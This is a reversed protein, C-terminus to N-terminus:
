FTINLTAMFSALQPTGDQELRTFLNSVFYAEPDLGTWGTWTHLNRAAVTLVADQGGLWRAYRRPFSYSASVERLKAFDAKNVVWSQAINNGQLEAIKLIDYNQPNFNEDCRLFVQCLARLNNDFHRNGLKFDLLGYIRLRSLLTLTTSFSGEWKPDWVGLFVGGAASSLCDVGTKGDPGGACLVNIARKTTPDYTASIVKKRFIADVPYGVKPGFAGLTDVGPGLDLVKNTNYSLNLDGRLSLSRRQIPIASIQGEFGVNRIAGINLFQTAPFGLSPALQKELIADRTKKYYVSIDAAIRDDLLGAEFGAELETAREPALDPNGISQPIVAPGGDGGTVAQYSRLAAFSQPQQGSQGYAARLKLANVTGALGEALVYSASVKPYAVLDFNAGFASNNDVRVAGTLYFKEQWSFQQQVFVGLTSNAVFDDFGFTQATAAITELGPAPFQNGTANVVDVRRRYYQAGLTSTSGIRPTLKLKVGANYDFTFYSVARRQDFKFGQAGVGPNFQVWEPKLFRNLQRSAEDTQDQGVTLRQTFWPRPRHNITVSATYRDVDQSAQRSGWQFEPPGFLFGRSSTFRGLSDRVIAPDGFITSFWIGGAGAEFAQNLKSKVIGLTAQIDYSEAPTVNVNLNATFRRQNNTPEVGEDKDFSAATFYRVVGTGGSVNLGYGMGYGNTFLPRDVEGAAALGAEQALPDWEVVPCTTPDAPRPFPCVRGVPKRIRGEPNMFWQTGQRINLSIKPKDGAQGRKTFIQIVGNSAETGYLTAASPGKIVEIRDILNPDIDNLRSVVGSGFAQVVIGTAVDNVVRVGDVYILPQDSLSISNRGRIRIRPGAGVQGTGPIVVVGPARGNILNAIDPAPALEQMDAARVTTVSNGITRKEQGGATGTVVIEGLNIAQETLEIRVAADGVRAQVTRPRYGIRAASLTIGTGSVNALRFRGRSDTRAFAGTGEVTVRVGDLLKGTRAEVVTGAVEQAAVGAVTGALLCV